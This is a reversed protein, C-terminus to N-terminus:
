LRFFLASIPQFLASFPRYRSNEFINKLTLWMYKRNFCVTESFRKVRSQAMLDFLPLFSSFPAVKNLVYFLPVKKKNSIYSEVEALGFRGTLAVIPYLVVRWQSFLSQSLRSKRLRALNKIAHHDIKTHKGM